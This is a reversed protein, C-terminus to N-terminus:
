WNQGVFEKEIVPKLPMIARFVRFSEALDVVLLQPYIFRSLMSRCASETAAAPKHRIDAGMAM